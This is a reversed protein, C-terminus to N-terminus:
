LESFSTLRPNRAIVIVSHNRLDDVDEQAGASAPFLFDPMIRIKSYLRPRRRDALARAKRKGRQEPLSSSAPARHTTSFSSPFSAREHRRM